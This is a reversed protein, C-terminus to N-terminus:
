AAISDPDIRVPPLWLRSRSLGDDSTIVGHAEHDALQRDDDAVYRFLHEGPPADITVSWLGGEGREMPMREENWGRFSGVLEVSRASPIRVSFTVSGDPEITIM